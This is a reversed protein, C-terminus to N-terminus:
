HTAQYDDVIHAEASVITNAERSPVPVQGTLTRQQGGDIYGTFMDGDVMYGDPDLFQVKGMLRLNHGTQNKVVVKWSVLVWENTSETSPESYEEEIMDGTTPESHQFYFAAQAQEKTGVLEVTNSKALDAALAKMLERGSPSGDGAPDIWLTQYKCPGHYTISRPATEKQVKCGLDRLIRSAYAPAETANRPLERDSDSSRLELDTKTDVLIAKFGGVVDPTSDSDGMNRIRFGVSMIELDHAGSARLQVATTLLVGFAFVCCLLPQRRLVNHAMMASGQVGKTEYM